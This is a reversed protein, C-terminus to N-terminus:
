RYQDLRTVVQDVARQQQTFSTWDYGAIRLTVRRNHMAFPISDLVEAAPEMMAIKIKEGTLVSRLLHGHARFLDFLAKSVYAEGQPHQGIASVEVIADYDQFGDDRVQRDSERRSRYIGPMNFRNEEFQTVPRILVAPNGSAQYFSDAPAQDVHVVGKYRVRLISNPAVSETLTFTYKFQPVGTANDPVAPPSDPAVSMSGFINRVEAPDVTRNYVAIVEAIGYGIEDTKLTFTTTPASVGKVEKVAYLIPRLSENLLEGLSRRVDDEFSFIGDYAVQAGCFAPSITGQPGTAGSSLATPVVTLDVLEGGVGGVRSALILNKAVAHANLADVLGGPGDIPTVALDISAKITYPDSGTVTVLTGGPITGGSAIEFTIGTTKAIQEIKLGDGPVAVSVDFLDEPIVAGDSSPVIKVQITLRKSSVFRLTQFNADVEAITNFHWPRTSAIWDTGNHYRYTAGDDDSFRFLISGADAPLDADDIFQDLLSSLVHGQQVQFGWFDTWAEVRWGSLTILTERFLGSFSFEGTDDALKCRAVGGLVIGYADETATALEEALDHVAV